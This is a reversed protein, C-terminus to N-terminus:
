SSMDITMSYRFDNDKNDYNSLDIILDIFIEANRLKNEFKLLSERDKVTGIINFDFKNVDRSNESKTKKATEKVKPKIDISNIKVEASVIKSFDELVETFISRDEQLELIVKLQEDYKGISTKIEEVERVESQVHMTKLKKDLNNITVNLYQVSALCLFVLVFQGIILILFNSVILHNIKRWKVSLRDSPSLLNIKIM